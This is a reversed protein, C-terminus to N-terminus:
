PTIGTVIWAGSPLALTGDVLYNSLDTRIAAYVDDLQAPSLHKAALTGADSGAILTLAAAIGDDDTGAPGGDAHDFGITPAIARIGIDGWGAARLLDATRDADAFAMPGPDNPDPLPPPDTLAARIHRGMTFFPNHTADQWCVFAMRGGSRMATAINAFASTPHDFFMVGFRSVM